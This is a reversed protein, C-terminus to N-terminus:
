PALLKASCGTVQPRGGLSTGHVSGPGIEPSNNIRRVLDRLPRDDDLPVQATMVITVRGPEARTLDRDYLLQLEPAMAAVAHIIEQGVRLAADASHCDALELTIEISRVNHMTLVQPPLHRTLSKVPVSPRPTEGPPSGWAACDVIVPALFKGRVIRFPVAPQDSM